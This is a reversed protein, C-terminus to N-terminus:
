LLFKGGIFLRGTKADHRVTTSGALVKSDRDEIVKEVRYDISRVGDPGADVTKRIRWITVPAISGHPDGMGETAQLLKPFGPVYLDGKADPSINDLPMGVRITDILKLTKDENIALVRVQGDITSPLYILGDFGRALGNPFKLKTKPILKLAKDVLTRYLPQNSPPLPLQEDVEDGEFASHCDGNGNCYAVNGGGILHDLDMRWGSKVSHDNTVLFTGGGLAAVRNPTHLAGSWITRLHRMENEGRRTEFVEITNNAGINSADIVNNFAGIPPRQNILYFQITDGDLIQADFGLLDLTDNGTAGSYGVPKIARLNFLGDSGPYDIDLAILESGSLRRGKANM